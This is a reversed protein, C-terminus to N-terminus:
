NLKLPGEGTLSATNSNLEHIARLIHCMQASSKLLPTAYAGELSLFLPYFFDPSM